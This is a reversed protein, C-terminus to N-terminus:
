EEQCATTHSNVNKKAAATIVPILHPSNGAQPIACVPRGHSHWFFFFFTRSRSESDLDHEVEQPLESIRFARYFHHMRLLTLENRTFNNGRSGSPNM